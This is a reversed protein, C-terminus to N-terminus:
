VFTNPFTYKGFEFLINMLSTYEERNLITKNSRLQVYYDYGSGSIINRSGQKFLCVSDFECYDYIDGKITIYSRTSILYEGRWYIYFEENVYNCFSNRNINKLSYVVRDYQERPSFEM